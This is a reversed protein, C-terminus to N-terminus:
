PTRDTANPYTSARFTQSPQRAAPKPRFDDTLTLTEPLGPDPIRSIM